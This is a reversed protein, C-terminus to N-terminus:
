QSQASCGSLPGNARQTWGGPRLPLTRTRALRRVYACARANLSDRERTMATGPVLNIIREIRRVLDDLSVSPIHRGYCVLHPPEPGINPHFPRGPQGTASLTVIPADIPYRPPLLLAAEWRSHIVVGTETKLLGPTAGFRLVVVRGRQTWTFDPHASALRALARMDNKIRKLQWM